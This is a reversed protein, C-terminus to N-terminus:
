RKRKKAHRVHQPHQPHLHENRICHDFGVWDIRAGGRAANRNCMQVRWQPPHRRAVFALASHMARRQSAMCRKQWSCNIGINLSVPDHLLSGQVASAPTSLVALAAVALTWKM